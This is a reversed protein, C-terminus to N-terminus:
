GRAVPHGWYNYSHWSAPKLIRRYLANHHGSFNLQLVLNTGCRTTQNYEREWSSHNGWKGVTLRYCEATAPWDNELNDATLWGGGLNKIQDKVAPTELLPAYCSQKIRRVSCGDQVLYRPLLVAYRGKYYYFLTRGRDLCAIIDDALTTKM